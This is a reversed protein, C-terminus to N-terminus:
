NIKDSFFEKSATPDDMQMTGAGRRPTPLPVRPQHPKNTNPELGKGPPHQLTASLWALALSSSALSM